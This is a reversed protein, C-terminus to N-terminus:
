IEAGLRKAEQLITEFNLSARQCRPTEERRPQDRHDGGSSARTARQLTVAEEEKGM